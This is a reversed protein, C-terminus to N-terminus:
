SAGKVSQIAADLGAGDTLRRAIRGKADLLIVVPTERVGFARFVRGSADLVVPTVAATKRRYTDVDKQNDWLGDAVSVADIDGRKVAADVAERTRRCAESRAPQRPAIYQECSPWVFAIARPKGDASPGAFPALADGGLTALDHPTDGLRFRTEAAVQAGQAEAAPQAIAQDLAQHLREDELNGVYLVKGDRGIVVHQPTVRLNLAAGLAGDDFVIPMKLGLQARLTKVAEVSDNFGVDVAVVQVRDGLTEYDKEFGPMQARCPTCWTAWLKLYVPKKGYLRALDIKQGDITRLTLAPGPKGILSRGVEEARGQGSQPDTAAATPPAAQAVAPPPKPGHCAGLGLLLVAISVQRM